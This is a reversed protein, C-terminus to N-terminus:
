KEEAESAQQKELNIICRGNSWKYGFEECIIRLYVLITSPSYDTLMAIDHYSIAFIKHQASRAKVLKLFMEAIEDKTKVKGMKRM